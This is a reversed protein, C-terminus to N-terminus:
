DDNLTKGEKMKKEQIDFTLIPQSDEFYDLISFNNLMINLTKKTLNKNVDKSGKNKILLKAKLM